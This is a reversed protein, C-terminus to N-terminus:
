GEMVEIVSKAAQDSVDLDVPGTSRVTDRVGNLSSLTKETQRGHDLVYMADVDERSLRPLTVWGDESKNGRVENGRIVFCLRALRSVEAFVEPGAKEMHSLRRIRAKMMELLASAEWPPVKIEAFGPQTM